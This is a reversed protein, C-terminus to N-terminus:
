DAHTVFFDDVKSDCWKEHRKSKVHHSLCMRSGEWGCCCKARILYNKACAERNYDVVLSKTINISIRPVQTNLTPKFVNFLAYEIFSAATDTCFEKHIVEFTWNPFGGHKNMMTYLKIDSAECYHKHKALRAVPNLTRGIYLDTVTVDKCFFKYFHHMTSPEFLALEEQQQEQQM